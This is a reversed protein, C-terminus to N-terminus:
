DRLVLSKVEGPSVHFTTAELAGAATEYEITSEGAPVPINWAPTAIPDRGAVRARRWSTTIVRVKAEGAPPEPMLYSRTPRPKKALEYFHQARGAEREKGLKKFMTNLALYIEPNFPNILRVAEFHRKAGEMDGATFRLRGALLHGDSNEPHARLVRDLVELARDHRDVAAYAKALRNVLTAYRSGSKEYAKESSRLRQATTVM